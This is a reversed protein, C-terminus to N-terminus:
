TDLFEQLSYYLIIAKLVSELVSRFQKINKINGRLNVYKKFCQVGKYQLSNHGVYFNMNYIKTLALKM